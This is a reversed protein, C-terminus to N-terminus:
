HQKKKRSLVALWIIGIAVAIVSWFNGNPLFLVFPKIGYRFWNLIFRTCGYFILFYAYLKNQKNKNQEFRLLIVMIILAVIMEVIQSPFQFGLSPLYKGICCGSLLCDIKMIALMLCIAPACLDLVLGYPIRLLLAPLMLIPVFFVAGFFSTGGFHGTEIYHMIMTGIVGVITLLISIIPIKWLTIHPYAKRRLLMQILMALAGACIIMIRHTAM